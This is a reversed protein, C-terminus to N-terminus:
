GLTQAAAQLYGPGSALELQGALRAMEQAGLAWKLFSVKGMWMHSQQM